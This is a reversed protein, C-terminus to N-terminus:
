RGPQTAPLSINVTFTRTNHTIALVGGAKEVIARASAIGIGEGDHKRSMLREGSSSIKGDYNNEIIIFVRGAVFGTEVGVTGDPTESAADVANELLNGVLRCIEIDSLPLTEPLSILLNMKVNKEEAAQRYYRLVADLARNACVRSEGHAAYARAQVMENIYDEIKTKEGASNLMLITRFHQRMDHRYRRGEEVKEALRETYSIHIALQREMQRREVGSVIAIRYKKTIDLWLTGGLILVPILGGWETFWGGFVPEFMNYIRDCALSVAYFTGAFILPWGGKKDNFLARFSSIIFFAAFIIKAYDLLASYLISEKATIVSSAAGYALAAVTMALAFIFATRAINKPVACMKNHIIVLMLLMAFYSFLELMYWPHIPLEFLTHIIPYSSYGALSFCAGAYVLVDRRGLRVALYLALVGVILAIIVVANAATNKMSIYDMVAQPTGFAPPFILGGYFHSYNSVAITIMASRVARFMIFKNQTWEASGGAYPDGSSVALRGDIYLRYASYIEPLELAYEDEQEPLRLQLSYTGKGHPSTEGDAAFSKREGITIQERYGRYRRVEAPTLLQGPYFSWGSCIFRLPTRKMEGSSIWLLGGVPQPESRTYKNNNEYLFQFFAFSLAVAALLKIAAAAKKNM